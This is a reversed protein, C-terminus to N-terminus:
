RAADQIRELLPATSGGDLAALAATVLESSRGSGMIPDLVGALKGALEGECFPWQPDGPVHVQEREYTRSGARVSVRAPWAAPYHALLTEDAQVTITSMLARVRESVAGQPSVRFQAEPDLVGLAAQYPLSTLFSARDGPTVGHNVMRLYAPPVGVKIESIGAVELGERVLEKLGQSGAMTQRAACWPKFSVEEIACRAAPSALRELKPSISYVSSLFDRELLGTDATFGDRAAFAAMAGTRAAHGVSLWRAMREGSQHGVGPSASVLALGLAHATGQADLGLLRAAVASVGIPALFYSPWIGRYLIRPGELAEALRVMAEYGALVSEGLAAAPAGLEAAITLAAPIVLAGPTTASALHIDDLESLRAFACHQLVRDLLGERGSAPKAFRAILTGEPARAGAIWAAATDVLHRAVLPRLSASLTERACVRAAISELATM